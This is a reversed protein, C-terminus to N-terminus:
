QPWVAGFARAALGRGGFHQQWEAPSYANAVKPFRQVLNALESASVKGPPLSALQAEFDRRVHGPVLNPLVTGLYFRLDQGRDGARELYGNPRGAIADDLIEFPIVALYDPPHDSTKSPLGNVAAPRPANAMISWAM